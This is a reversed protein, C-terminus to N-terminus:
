RRLMLARAQIARQARFAQRGAERAKWGNRQRSVVTKSKQWRRTTKSEVEACRGALVSRARSGGQAAHTRVAVFWQRMSSGRVRWVARRKTRQRCGAACVSVAQRRRRPARVLPHAEQRGAAAYRAQRVQWRGGSGRFV